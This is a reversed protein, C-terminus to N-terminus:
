MVLNARLVVLNKPRNGRAAGRSLFPLVFQAHLRMPLLLMTAIPAIPWKRTREWSSGHEAVALLTVVKLPGISRETLM